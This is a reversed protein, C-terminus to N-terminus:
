RGRGGEDTAVPGPRLRALPRTDRSGLGAPVVVDLLVGVVVDDGRDGLVDLGGTERAVVAVGGPRPLVALGATGEQHLPEATPRIGALQGDLEFGRLERDSSGRVPVGPAPNTM